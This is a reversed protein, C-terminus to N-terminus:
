SYSFLLESIPPSGALMEGYNHSPIKSLRPPSSIDNCSSTKDTVQLLDTTKVPCKPKRWRYVQGGRYLQFLTSLPMLRWLGLEM